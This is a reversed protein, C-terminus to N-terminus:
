RRRRLTLMALLAFVVSPVIWLAGGAILNTGDPMVCSSAAAEICDRHFWYRTLFLWFFGAAM